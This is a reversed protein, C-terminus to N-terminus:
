ESRRSSIESQKKPLEHFHYILSTESREVHCAHRQLAEVPNERFTKVKTLKKLTTVENWTRRLSPDLRAGPACVTM